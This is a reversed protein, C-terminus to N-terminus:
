KFISAIHHSSTVAICFSSLAALLFSGNDLAHFYCYILFAVAIGDCFPGFTSKM